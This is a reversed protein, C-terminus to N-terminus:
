MTDPDREGWLIVYANMIISALSAVARCALLLVRVCVRLLRIANEKENEGDYQWLFRLCWIQHAQHQNINRSINKYTATALQSNRSIIYSTFIARHAKASNHQITTSSTCMFSFHISESKDFGMSILSVNLYEYIWKLHEHQRKHSPFNGRANKNIHKHTITMNVLSKYSKGVCFICRVSWCLIYIAHRCVCM